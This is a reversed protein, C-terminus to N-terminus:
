QQQAKLAATNIQVEYRDRLATLFANFDREALLGEYQETIAKVRPDDAALEPRNVADIRFVSYGAGPMSAGAYAPLKAASAGFVADMAAPPLSPNGRQVKRVASWEGDVSEGRGLAALAAEGRERALRAAEEARLQEEIIPRVTDFPLRQAPEHELVRASVLTGREVEVAEVNRGHKVADDSFLASVLKESQFPGIAESGREIWDTEKVELKLLEAAPQLSDAQEYVTNSFQDALEAFRRGAEQRKLEEVIEDRVAEFPRVSAPRVETVQIVHFGFESRVPDSVQGKELSFAADEFAKVMAGRGFFGLDGGREASGPDKSEAKALAEFRSPDARLAAALEAAKEKARAEEEASDGAPILIHRARREEPTGFRDPNAEYFRRAEEESVEVQGLLANEDFVVYQARVRAPREFREPNAEYYRQAADEALKVEGMLEAPAFRLERVEREELQAALFRRASAKAVFASEGVAQALQQIRLDQALRAEFMAPSMGQSRLVRDYLEMSFEGDSQFAPLSAITEQLQQPAVVLRNEAAYLALVRQNILNEVVARRLEESELLSRDFQEGMAERLRDQQERLARDFEIATIKSGGVSAVEGGGPADSFWADMGFFAFPIIIIALIIQAIRKNRRVAELM